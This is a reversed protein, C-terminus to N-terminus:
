VFKREQTGEDHNKVIIGKRGAYRGGLVLVVKGSKMFKGMELFSNISDIVDTKGINKAYM